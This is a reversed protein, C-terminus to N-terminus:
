SIRLYYIADKQYEPRMSPFILRIGLSAGPGVNTYDNEDWEIVKKKWYKGILILDLFLEHSMFGSVGKIKELNKILEEVTKSKLITPIEKHISEGVLVTYVYDKFKGDVSENWDQPLRAIGVVNMMYATHWPNGQTRRYERVEDWLLQSDFTDYSQLSVSFKQNTFTDPQNFFRYLFTRFVINEVSLDLDCFINNIIYQSSRDLERYVNTFKHNKFFKDDTWKERPLKLINRNVWINQRDVMTSFFLELNKEDVDEDESPLYKMISLNNGVVGNLFQFQGM